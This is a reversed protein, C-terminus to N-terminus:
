SSKLPQSEATDVPATGGGQSTTSFLAAGGGSGATRAALVEHAPGVGDGPDTMRGHPEVHVSKPDDGVGHESPPDGMETAPTRERIRLDTVDVQHQEGVHVHIM